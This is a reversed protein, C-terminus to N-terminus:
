DLKLREHLEKREEVTAMFADAVEDPSMRHVRAYRSLSAFDKNRFAELVYAQKNFKEDPPPPPTYTPKTLPPAFMDVKRMESNEKELDIIRKHAWEIHSVLRHVQNRQQESWFRMIGLIEKYEKPTLKKGMNKRIGINKIDTL